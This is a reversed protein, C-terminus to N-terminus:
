KQSKECIVKINKTISTLMFIPGKTRIVVKESDVTECNVDEANFQYTDDGYRIIVKDDEVNGYVGFKRSAVIGLIGLIIIIYYYPNSLWILLIEGLSLQMVYIAPSLEITDWFQILENIMYAVTILLLVAFLLYERVVGEGLYEMKEGHSAMFRRDKLYLVTLVLSSIAFIIAIIGAIIISLITILLDSLINKIEDLSDGRYLFLTLHSTRNSEIIINVTITIELERDFRYIIVHQYENRPANHIEKSRDTEITINGEIRDTSIQVGFLYYGATINKSFVKYIEHRGAKYDEDIFVVSRSSIKRRSSAMLLLTHHIWVLSILLVLISILCRFSRKALMVYVSIVLDKDTFNFM